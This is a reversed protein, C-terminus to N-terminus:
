SLLFSLPKGFPLGAKFVSVLIAFTTRYHLRFTTNDIYSKKAKFYGSFGGFTGYM